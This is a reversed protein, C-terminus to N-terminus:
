LLARVQPMKNTAGCLDLVDWSCTKNGPYSVQMSLAYKVFGRGFFHPM